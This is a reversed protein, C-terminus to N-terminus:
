KDIMDVVDHSPTAIKVWIRWGTWISGSSIRASQSIKTHLDFRTLLSSTMKALPNFAPQFTPVWRIPELEIM